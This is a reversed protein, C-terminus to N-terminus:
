NFDDNTLVTECECNGYSPKLLKSEKLIKFTWNKNDKLNKLLVVSDIKPQYNVGYIRRENTTDCDSYHNLPLKEWESYISRKSHKKVILTDVTFSTDAYVTQLIMVDFDSQNDIIRDYITIPDCSTLTILVLSLIVLVKKM